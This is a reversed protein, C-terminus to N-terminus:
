CANGTEEISALSYKPKCYYSDKFSFFEHICFYVNAPELKLFTLRQSSKKKAEGKLTKTQRNLKKKLLSKM